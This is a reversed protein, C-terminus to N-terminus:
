LERYMVRPAVPGHEPHDFSAPVAGLIRFGLSTWLGVAPNTEVVSNFVMIM